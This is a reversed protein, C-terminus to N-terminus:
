ASPKGIPMRPPATEWLLAVEPPTLGYAENVLDSLRHELHDSEARLARVRPAYDGYSKQLERIAAPSLRAASRLRRGKVERLFADEDLTWFEALGQGPTEVDFELHLWKLFTSSFETSEKTISMLNVVTTEADARLSESPQAIPLTRVFSYILRLAEDQFQGLQEPVTCEELRVPILHIDGPLKGKWADLAERLERQLVGRKEVSNPSICAFFFHSDRIAHLIREQWLEGPLIDEHDMWPKLGVAALREYLRAVAAEDKRTYSLFLQVPKDATTM